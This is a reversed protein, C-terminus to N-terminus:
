YRLTSDGQSWEKSGEILTLMFYRLHSQSSSRGVPRCQEFHVWFLGAELIASFQLSLWKAQSTVPMPKQPMRSNSLLESQSTTRELPMSWISTTWFPCESTMKGGMALM